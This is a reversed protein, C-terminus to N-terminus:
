IAENELIQVGAPAERGIQIIRAAVADIHIGRYRAPILPSLVRDAFKGLDEGLRGESREGLLLSPRLIVVSPYGLAQMAEELRAKTQLYNSMPARTSAGVSSVSILRQAGRARALRAIALPYDHDIRRFAARGGAKKHTTGLANVVDRGVMLAQADELREFDILHSTLKEHGEVDEGVPRRSLTVVSEYPSEPALAQRLVRGGVAGTAGVLLMSSM